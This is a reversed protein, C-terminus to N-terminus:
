RGAQRGAYGPHEARNDAKANTKVNSTAARFKAALAAPSKAEDWWDPLFKAFEPAKKGKARHINALLMMLMATLFDGRRNGIPEHQDFSRWELYEAHSLRDQLEAVTM